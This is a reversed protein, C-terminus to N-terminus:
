GTKVIAYKTGIFKAFALEFEEINNYIACIIKM